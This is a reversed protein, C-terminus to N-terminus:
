EQYSQIDLDSKLFVKLWNPNDDLIVKEVAPDIIQFKIMKNSTSDIIDSEALLQFTKQRIKKQSSETFSEMRPYMEAKKKYFTLYDSDELQYDFLLLKNRLVDVVFDRIFGYSKCISLYAMQRQSNLNGNALLQLQNPTLTRIRSTYEQMKKQGSIKKGNGLENTANMERKEVISQAVKGMEHVNLATTAFSFSYSSNKAM